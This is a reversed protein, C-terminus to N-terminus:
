RGNGALLPAVQVGADARREPPEGSLRALEERYHSLFYECLPLADAVLSATRSKEFGWQSAWAKALLLPLRDEELDEYGIAQLVVAGRVSLFHLDFLSEVWQPHEAAFQEFSRKVAKGM